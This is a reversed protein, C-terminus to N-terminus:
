KLEALARQVIRNEPYKRSLGQLLQRASDAQGMAVLARSALLGRQM